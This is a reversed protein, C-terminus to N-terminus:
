SRWAEKNSPQFFHFNIAEINTLNEFKERKRLMFIRTMKLILYLILLDTILIHDRYNTERAESFDSRGDNIKEYM